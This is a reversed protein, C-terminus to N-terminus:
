PLGTSAIQQRRRPSCLDLLCPLLVVSSLLCCAIGLTVVRGLSRLGEHQAIMLSGFGIMSTLSTLVIGAVTARNLGQQRGGRRYDHLVHIGDDIGIGIILPLVIINAPNLSIQLWGMLGFLQLLGLGTPLAALLVDDLRRLDVILIIVVALAALWAARLYSTKMQRSAYYTQVPDGTVQPDIRELQNVFHRLPEMQWVNDEAFVRMLHKGRRGVYRHRLAAPLDALQPPQPDSIANIEVLAQRVREAALARQTNIQTASSASDTSGPSVTFPSGPRGAAVSVVPQLVPPTATIQQLVRHIHDIRDHRDASPEPLLSALEEVHQVSDLQEFAAHRKRVDDLTDAISVAFWTNRDSQELLKTEWEVSPLGKAQLQLLNHDYNLEGIGIALFATCGLCTLVTQWPRHWLPRVASTLDLLRAESGMVHHRDTWAIAAPLMWLTSAVCLLIGGGTIVGLEAVGQFETLATAFFAAATTIGGAVIPPGAERMAERIAEASASRRDRAEQYRALFHVAFDIGLGILIVGFSMSLINLHGVALTVYGWTWAIGLLLAGMGLVPYKLGGFGAWMLATVALVSLVSAWSMDTASTQMEDHELVPLGTVGLSVSGHEARVTERIQELVRFPEEDPVFGTSAPVLRLLVMGLRGHQTLLYDPFRQQLQQALASSAIHDDTSLVLDHGPRQGQATQFQSLSAFDDLTAHPDELLPVARRVYQEIRSLHEEPLYYLGKRILSDAEFRDFVDAFLDPRTRLNHGVDDIAATVESRNAGEVVVIADTNAGFEDVFDLWRQHFESRPNLLDQRSTKFALRQSALGISGLALTVGLLLRFDAWRRRDNHPPVSFSESM